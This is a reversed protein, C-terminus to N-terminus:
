PPGGSGIWLLLGVMLTGGLGGLAAALRWNTKQEQAVLASYLWATPDRPDFDKALALEKEARRNDGANSFAKGLYSRLVARQPEQVAAVQM